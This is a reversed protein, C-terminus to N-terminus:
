NKLCFEGKIGRSLGGNGQCHRCPLVVVPREVKIGSGHDGDSARDNNVFFRAISLRPVEATAFTEPNDWREVM